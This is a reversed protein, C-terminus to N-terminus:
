KRAAQPTTESRNKRSGHRKMVQQAIRKVEPRQNWEFIRAKARAYSEDPDVIPAPYERESRFGLQLKLLPPMRQPEALDADPLHVLEPVYQRVFIGRPDQDILQKKPSYIRIQNIGTVGSQMQAQSYHIGPEFDLFQRALYEAPKKWHLWLQYSAFSMLMARMRFNIWGHQHLARMCADILPFGTEGRCWAEFKAEDFESERLGDFERNFNRFEVEPESELKQIFHCHWALRSEFQKLSLGWGQARQDPNAYIERRKDRVARLVESMSLCGWALYPSIRSCGEFALLPSSLTRVYTAGREALFSSLARAAARGGGTQALPKLATCRLREHPLAGPAWPLPPPVQGGAQVLPREVIKARLEAWHDRNKLARIVGFQRDETWAVARAKAWAAVRQDRAYSWLLGTEEHSFLARIPHSRHLAELVDTASGERFVLPVGHETLREKLETLSEIVFRLHSPDYEPSSFWEPEFIFLGACPGSALARALPRHDSVRLDRKFWVLNM